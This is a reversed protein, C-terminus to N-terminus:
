KKKTRQRAMIKERAERHADMQRRKARLFAALIAVRSGGVLFVGLAACLLGSVGLTVPLQKASAVAGVMGFLGIVFALRLMRDFHLRANTAGFVIGRMLVAVVASSLVILAFRVMAWTEGQIGFAAICLANALIGLLPLLVLHGIGPPLLLVREGRLAQQLTENVAVVEDAQADSVRM